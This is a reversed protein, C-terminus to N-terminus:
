CIASLFFSSSELSARPLFVLTRQRPKGDGHPISVLHLEPSDEGKSAKTSIISRDLSAPTIDTRLGKRMKATRRVNATRRSRFPSTPSTHHVRKLLRLVDILAVCSESERRPSFLTPKTGNREPLLRTYEDTYISLIRLLSCVKHKCM